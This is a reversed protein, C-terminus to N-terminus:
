ETITGLAYTLAGLAWWLLHPGTRRERWRRLLAVMFALAVLTTAIPIYSIPTTM